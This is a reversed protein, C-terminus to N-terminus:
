LLRLPVSVLAVLVKAGAVVPSGVGLAGSPRWEAWGPTRKIQDILDLLLRIYM